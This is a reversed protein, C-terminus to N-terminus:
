QVPIPPDVWGFVLAVVLAIAGVMALMLTLAMGLGVLGVAAAATDLAKRRGRM